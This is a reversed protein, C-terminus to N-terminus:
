KEHVSYNEEHIICLLRVCTDRLTGKPFNLRLSFSSNSFLVMGKTVSVSAINIVGLVYSRNIRIFYKDFDIQQSIIECLRSLGFPVLQKTGNMMFIATYHDDAQLYAIDDISIWYLEDRNSAVIKMVKESVFYFAGIGSNNLSKCICLTSSIM